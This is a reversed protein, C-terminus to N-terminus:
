RTVRAAAAIALMVGLLQSNEISRKLVRLNDINKPRRGIRGLDLDCFYTRILIPRHHMPLFDNSLSHKPVRNEVGKASGSHRKGTSNPRRRSAKSM